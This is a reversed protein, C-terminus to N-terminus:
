FRRFLTADSTDQTLLGNSGGYSYPLVSESGFRDRASCMAEAIRDLADEWPVREFRALGKPGKRVAPYLLREPGYVREGFRRVKACIFDHTIPNLSSGNINTIKGNQLTVTLSCSDPCDLPCVTDVTHEPTYSTETKMDATCAPWAGGQDHDQRRAPEVPEVPRAEVSRIDPAPQGARRLTDCRGGARRVICGHCHTWWGTMRSRFRIKYPSM